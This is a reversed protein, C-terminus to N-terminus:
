NSLLTVWYLKSFNKYLDPNFDISIAQNFKNMNEETGPKVWEYFYVFESKKYETLNNKVTEYYNESWIHSMEQFVLTKEWNSVTIELMIAPSIENQYYWFSWLIIILIVISLSSKKIFIIIFTKYEIKEKKRLKRYIFTIWFFILSYIM